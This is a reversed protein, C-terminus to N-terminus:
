PRRAYAAPGVYDAVRSTGPAEFAGMSRLREAASESLDYGDLDGPRRRAVMGALAHDYEYRDVDAAALWRRITELKGEIRKIWM